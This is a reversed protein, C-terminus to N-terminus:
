YIVARYVPFQSQRMSTVGHYIIFKTSFVTSMQLFTPKIIFPSKRIMQLRFSVFSVRYFCSRDCLRQYEENFNFRASSNKLQFKSPLCSQFKIQVASGQFGQCSVAPSDYFSLFPFEYIFYMLM